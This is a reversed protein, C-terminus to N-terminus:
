GIQTEYQVIQLANGDVDAIILDTGGWDAHPEIDKLMTVNAERLRAAVDRIDSTMFSIFIPHGLAPDSAWAPDNIQKEGGSELTLWPKNAGQGLIVQTQNESELHMGMVDRYFAMQEELDRAKIEVHGIHPKFLDPGSPREPVHSLTWRIGEPATFEIRRGWDTEEIEGTFPVGRARAAVVVAELDDVQIGPRIGQKHGWARGGGASSRGGDFLEVIMSRSGARYADWGGGLSAWTGLDPDLEAHMGLIETYFRYSTRWDEVCVGMFNLEIDM